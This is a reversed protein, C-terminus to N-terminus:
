LFLRMARFLELAFANYLDRIEVVHSSKCKLRLVVSVLRSASFNLGPLTLSPVTGKDLHSFLKEHELYIMLESHPFMPLPTQKGPGPTQEGPGPIGGALRFVSTCWRTRTLAYCLFDRFHALPLVSCVFSNSLVVANFVCKDFPIVSRHSSTCRKRFIAAQNTTRRQTSASVGTQMPLLCSKAMFTNSSIVM